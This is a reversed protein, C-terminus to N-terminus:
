LVCRARVSYASSMALRSASYILTSRRSGGGPHHHIGVGLSNPGRCLRVSRDCVGQRGRGGECAERKGLLEKILMERVAREAKNTAAIAQLEGNDPLALAAINELTEAMTDPHIDRHSESNLHKMWVELLSALMFERTDKHM